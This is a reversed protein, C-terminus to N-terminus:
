HGYWKDVAAKIGTAETIKEVLDGAGPIKENLWKKREACGCGGKKKPKAEQTKVSEASVASTASLVTKSSGDAMALMLPEESTPIECGVHISMPHTPSAPWCQSELWPVTVDCCNIPREGSPVNLRYTFMFVGGCTLAVQVRGASFSLTITLSTGPIVYEYICASTPSLVFTGNFPTVDDCIGGAPCSGSFGSMTVVYQDKKTARTCIPCEASPECCKCGEASGTANYFFTPPTTGCQCDTITAQLPEEDGCDPLFELQFQDECDDEDSDCRFDVEYTDGCSLAATGTWRRPKEPPDVETLLFKEAPAECQLPYVEIEVQKGWRECCTTYKGGCGDTGDLIDRSEIDEPSIAAVTITSPMDCDDPDGQLELEIEGLERTDLDSGIEILESKYEAIVLPAVSSSISNTYARATFRVYHGGGSEVYSPEVQWVSQVIMTPGGIASNALFVTAGTDCGCPDDEPIVTSAVRYTAGDVAIPNEIAFDDKNSCLPCFDGGPISYDTMDVSLYLCGEAVGRLRVLRGGGPAGSDIFYQAVRSRHLLVHSGGINGCCCGEGSVTGADLDYGIPLILNCGDIRCDGSSSSSRSSSSCRCNCKPPRGM